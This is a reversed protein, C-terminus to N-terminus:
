PLRRVCPGALLWASPVGAALPVTLDSARPILGPYHCVHHARPSGSAIRPCTAERPSRKGRIKFYPRTRCSTLASARSEKRAPWHRTRRRDGRQRQGKGGNAKVITDTGDCRTSLGSHTRARRRRHSPIPRMGHKTLVPQAPDRDLSTAPADLARAEVNAPSLM